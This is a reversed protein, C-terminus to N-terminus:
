EKIPLRYGGHLETVLLVDFKSLRGMRKGEVAGIADPAFGVASVVFIRRILPRPRPLDYRLAEAVDRLEEVSVPNPGPFRKILFYAPTGFYRHIWAIPGFRPYNVDCVVDWLTRSKRRLGVNRRIAAPARDRVEEVEPYVEALKNLIRNEPTDGEAPLLEFKVVSAFRFYDDMWRRVPRILRVSNWIVFPSAIILIFAYLGFLVTVIPLAPQGILLWVLMSIVLTAWALFYYLTQM